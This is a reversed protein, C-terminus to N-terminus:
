WKRWSPVFSRGLAARKSRQVGGSRYDLLGIVEDDEPLQFRTYTELKGTYPARHVVM